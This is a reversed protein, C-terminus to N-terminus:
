RKEIIKEIPLRRKPTISPQNKDEISRKGLAVALISKYDKSSNLFNDYKDPEIGGMPTADIDMAACASLLVGLAIHAQESMWNKIYSEGLPKIKEKYYTLAYEPLNNTIQEEFLDLNNFINFVILHSCDEVKEKNHFSFPALSEKIEQNSIITFKWPQTNLSSPSLHLIEEIENLQETTLKVTADYKKTTYRKKMMELFNM